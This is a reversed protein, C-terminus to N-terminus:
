PSTSGQTSHSQLFPETPSSTTIRDRNTTKGDCLQDQCIHGRSLKPGYDDRIQDLALLEQEFLPRIEELGRSAPAGRGGGRRGLMLSPARLARNEAHATTAAM